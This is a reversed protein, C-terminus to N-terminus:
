NETIYVNQREFTAIDSELQAMQSEMEEKKRRFSLNDQGFSLAAYRRKVDALNSQLGELIELREEESLLRCRTETDEPMMSERVEDWYEAEAQSQKKVKDLYKPVKGFEPKETYFTVPKEPHLKKTQPAKKWNELIYNKKPPDKVKLTENASPVPPRKLTTNGHPSVEKKPPLDRCVARKKLFEEPSKQLKEKPEGMTGHARKKATMFTTDGAYKSVHLPGKVIVPPPKPILNYITEEEDM